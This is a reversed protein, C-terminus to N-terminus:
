SSTQGSSIGESRRKKPPLALLAAVACLVPLALLGLIALSYDGTIDYLLGFPLPGLAAFAVTSSMSVGRISGLHLRGYYNPWIVATINMIFGMSLGLIAGYTFAQWSSTILFTWLMVMGLLVQGVVLLYRNPFRDAMLGAIFTGLLQSPGIISFVATAVGPQIGKSTLFSIQHFTLGTGILPLASTAFLLLWFTRTHLAESLSFDVEQVISARAGVVQEKLQPVLKGDPLLGVSEPSRRVLLVIPIMVIWIALALVVWTNRWGINSILAHAMIPFTAIAIAIGISGIAMARGRLRVFWLAILTSAILGLSGQGLTRLAAFGFYLKVPHNVTSMWLAALGFLIGIVLLMIRAGYRDLLRGVFIVAVGATLSGATYLSSVLTRSWGLDSIVPDIFVSILFTQGPGSIFRTLASVTLIVWGYFFPARSIISSHRIRSSNSTMNVDIKLYIALM